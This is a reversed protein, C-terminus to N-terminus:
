KSRPSSGRTVDRRRRGSVLKNELVLEARSSFIEKEEESEWLQRKAAVGNERACGAEGSRVTRDEERNRSDFRGNDFADIEGSGRIV